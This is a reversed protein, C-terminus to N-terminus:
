WNVFPFASKQDAFRLAMDTLHVIGDDSQSYFNSGMASLTSAVVQESVGLAQAAQPISGGADRLAALAHIRRGTDQVDSM